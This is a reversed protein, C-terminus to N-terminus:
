TSATATKVPPSWIVKTEKADPAPEIKMFGDKVFVDVMSSLNGSLVKAHVVVGSAKLKEMLASFIGRRRSAATVGVYDIYIAAKNAYVDPRALVFGVIGKDADVAVWSKRSLRRQRIVTKIKGQEDIGDLQVPIEPAVEELVDLIDTEDDFGALRYEIENADSDTAM